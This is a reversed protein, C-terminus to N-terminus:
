EERSFGSAVSLGLLEERPLTAAQLAVPSFADRAILRLKEVFAKREEKQSHEPFWPAFRNGIFPGLITELFVVDGALPIITHWVPRRLRAMFNKRGAGASLVIPKFETGDDGCIMVAFQGSLALFSKGSRFNVHPHDCSNSPLAIVMEHLDDECNAHLILRARENPAARAAAILQQIHQDTVVVPDADTEFVSPSVSAFKEIM